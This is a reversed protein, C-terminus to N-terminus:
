VAQYYLIGEQGPVLQAGLNHCLEVQIRVQPLEGAKPVSWYGVSGRDRRCALRDHVKELYHIHGKGIEGAEETHRTGVTM